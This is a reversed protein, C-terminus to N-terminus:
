EQHNPISKDIISDNQNELEQLMSDLLPNLEKQPKCPRNFQNRELWIDADLKGPVVPLLIGEDISGPQLPVLIDQDICENPALILSDILYSDVPLELSDLSYSQGFGIFPLFFLLLLSHRM